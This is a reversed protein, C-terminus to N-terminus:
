RTGCYRSEPGRNECSAQRGPPDSPFWRLWEVNMGAFDDAEALVITLSVIKEM